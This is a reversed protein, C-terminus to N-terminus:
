NKMYDISLLALMTADFRNGNEHLYCDRFVGEDIFGIKKLANISRLNDSATHATVRHFNFDYFLTNMVLTLAEMFVGSGWYNPSVAYSIECSGTREDIDLIGFSGIVKSTANHQIFWWYANIRNSRQILRELYERTSEINNQPVFELFEYLRIDSSYEYMDNLYDLSLEILNLNEGYIDEFLTKMMPSLYM